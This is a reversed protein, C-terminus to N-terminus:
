RQPPAVDYIHKRQFYIFWLKRPVKGIYLYTRGTKIVKTIEVWFRENHMSIKAFDGKKVKRLERASPAWFTAPYQKHMKQADTLGLHATYQAM